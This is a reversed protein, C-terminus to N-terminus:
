ARARDITRELACGHGRRMHSTHRRQNDALMALYRGAGHLGDQALCGIWHRARGVGEVRTPCARKQGFALTANSVVGEVTAPLEIRKTRNTFLVVSRLIPARRPCWDQLCFFTVWKAGPQFLMKRM